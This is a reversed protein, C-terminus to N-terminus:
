TVQPADGSAYRCCCSPSRPRGPPRRAGLARPEGAHPAARRRVARRPRAHRRLPLLLGAGGASASRTSASRESRLQVAPVRDPAGSGAAGSCCGAWVGGWARRGGVEASGCGEFAFAYDPLQEELHAALRGGELRVVFGVQSPLPRPPCRLSALPPSLPAPPPPRLPAVPPCRHSAVPPAPLRPAGLLRGAGRRRCTCSPGCGSTWAMRCSARCAACSRRWRHLAPHLWSRPAPRRQPRATDTPALTTSLRRLGGPAPTVLPRCRSPAPAQWMEAEARVWGANGLWRVLQTLLDPLGWFLERLADLEESVGEAVLCGAAAGQPDVVGAIM